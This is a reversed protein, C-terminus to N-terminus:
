FKEWKRKERVSKGLLESGWHEPPKKALGFCRRKIQGSQPDTVHELHLFATLRITIGTMEDERTEGQMLFCEFRGSMRTSMARSKKMIESWVRCVVLMWFLLLPFFYQGGRRASEFENDKENQSQSCRCSCFRVFCVTATMTMALGFDLSQEKAHALFAFFSCFFTWDDLVRPSM